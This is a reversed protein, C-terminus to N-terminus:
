KNFEFKRPNNITNVLLIANESINKDNSKIFNEFSQKKELIYDMISIQMFERDISKYLKLYEADMIGDFEDDFLKIKIKKYKELMGKTPKYNIANNVQYNYNAAEFITKINQFLISKDVKEENLLYIYIKLVWPTIRYLTEQDEVRDIIYKYDILGANGNIIKIFKEKLDKANNELTHAFRNWPFNNIYNQIDM